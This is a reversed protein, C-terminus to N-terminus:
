ENIEIKEIGNAIIPKSTKTTAFRVKFEAIVSEPIEPAVESIRAIKGRVDALLASADVRQEVPLSLEIQITKFMKLYLLSVVRHGEAKASFKYYSLMTSLIGTFISLAGLVLPPM